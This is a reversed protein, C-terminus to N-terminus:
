MVQNRGGVRKTWSEGTKNLSRRYTTGDNLSDDHQKGDGALGLIFPKNTDIGAVTVRETGNYLTIRRSLTEGNGAPTTEVTVKNTGFVFSSQEKFDWKKGDSESVHPDGWIRTARGEPGVIQWAQQKGEAKLTYGDPTRVTIVGTEDTLAQLRTLPPAAQASPKTPTVEASGSSSSGTSPKPASEATTTSSSGSSSSNAAVKPESSGQTSSDRQAFISGLLGVLSSVLGVVAELVRAVGSDSGKAATAAAQAAARQTEELATQLGTSATSVVEEGKPLDPPEVAAEVTQENTNVEQSQSPESASSTVTTAASNTSEVSAM